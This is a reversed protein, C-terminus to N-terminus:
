GQVIALNIFLAGTAWAPTVGRAVLAYYLDTGTCKFIIGIDDACYLKNNSSVYWRAADLPIVGVCKQMDVDSPAWAANDAPATFTDHFLWLELAAAATTTGDLLTITGIRGKGGAVRVANAFAQPTTTTGCYDGADKAVGTDTFTMQTTIWTMPPASKGIFNEGAALVISTALAGVATAIAKLRDLITNATPSAQVEGVRAAFTAETLQAAATTLLTGLASTLYRLKASLTGVSGATAAADAATGAVAAFTAEALPDIDADDAANRVTVKGIRLASAGLSIGGALLGAVDNTLRRLHAVASAAAGPAAMADSTAGLAVDHGDGVRVPLGYASGSPAEDVPEIMADPDAGALRVRPRLRTESEIVVEEQDLVATPDDPERIAIRGNSM